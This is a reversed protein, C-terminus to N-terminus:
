ANQWLGITNGEPDTFYGTFGMDAVAQKGLLTKGGHQEVKTLAAEIDDVNITLVPSTLPETRTFLGGNIAGPSSPMGDEGTATTSVSTYDMEPMPMLNWGFADRYFSGARAVDDAPIEFHVVSDM